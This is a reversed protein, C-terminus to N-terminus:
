EVVEITFDDHTYIEGVAALESWSSAEIAEWADWTIRFVKDYVADESHVTLSGVKGTDHIEFGIM